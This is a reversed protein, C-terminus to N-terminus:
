DKIYNLKSNKYEGVVARLNKVTKMPGEASVMNVVWDPLSGAPDFHVTYVLQIVDNSKPTLVWKAKYSKIRIYEKNEPKYDPVSKSDITIVKTQPDQHILTHLILDRNQVPWPMETIQYHYTEFSSVVELMQAFGCGYVWNPFKSKETFASIVASLSGKLETVVKLEKLARGTNARRSYIHINEESKVLEWEREQSLAVRITGLLILITFIFIRNM